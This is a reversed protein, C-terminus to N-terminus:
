KEYVKVKKDAVFYVVAFMIVAITALGIINAPISPLNALIATKAQIAESVAYIQGNTQEVFSESMNLLLWELGDPKASAFQSIAGALVLSVFGTVYSFNKSLNTKQAAYVIAATVVGEIVGIALHISQMLGAFLGINATTSGSLASEAVVAISGLQLAVVSALIAGLVSKKNDALPKYILPYAVFCALFGMNFINCGLAMLGGDAFFVAQVLLIACMALFAAYPGLIAALLIGGVIHGSSATTPISFNIMQLAFVLSTVAVAPLVDDKKYDKRAKKFAWVAAAEEAVPIDGTGGTCIAIEGVKEIKNKVLTLVKARENYEIDPLVSKVFEYQKKSACTGIVNQGNASFTKFIEALQENFIKRVDERTRM